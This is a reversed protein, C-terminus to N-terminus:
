MVSANTARRMARPLGLRIPSGAPRQNAKAAQITTPTTSPFSYWLADRLVEVLRLVDEVDDSRVRQGRAHRHTPVELAAVQEFEAIERDGTDREDVEHRDAPMVMLM